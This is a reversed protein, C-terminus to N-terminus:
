KAVIYDYLKSGYRLDPSVQSFLSHYEVRYTKSLLFFIYFIPKPNIQNKGVDISKFKLASFSKWSQEDFICSLFLLIHSM